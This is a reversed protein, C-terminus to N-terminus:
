ISLITSQFCQFVEIELLNGVFIKILFKIDKFTNIAKLYNLDSSELYHRQLHINAKLDQYIKQNYFLNM